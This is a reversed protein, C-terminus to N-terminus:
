WRSWVGRGLVLASQLPDTERSLPHNAATQWRELVELGGPGAPLVTAGGVRSMCESDSGEAPGFGGSVFEPEEHSCNAEHVAAPGGSGRVMAGVGLGRVM